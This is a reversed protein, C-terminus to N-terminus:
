KKGTLTKAIQEITMDSRLDFAGQQISRAYEPRALYLEVERGNLVIGEGEVQQGIEYISMGEYVFITATVVAETPTSAVAEEKQVPQETTVTEEVIKEASAEEIPQESAEAQLATLQQELEKIEKQYRTSDGNTATLGFQNLLALCMGAVFLGIGFARFSTKM